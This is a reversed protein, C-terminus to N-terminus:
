PQGHRNIPLQAIGDRFRQGIWEIKKVADTILTISAETSPLAM